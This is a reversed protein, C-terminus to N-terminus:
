HRFVGASVVLWGNLNISFLGGALTVEFVFLGSGGPKKM